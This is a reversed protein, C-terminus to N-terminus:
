NRSPESVIRLTRAFGPNWDIIGRKQLARLHCNVGNPQIGFHNGIERITPPYGHGAVFDKIFDLVTRQRETPLPANAPSIAGRTRRMPAVQRNRDVSARVVAKNSSRRTQKQVNPM